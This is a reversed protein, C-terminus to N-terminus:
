DRPPEPHINNSDNPARSSLLASVVDIVGATMKALRSVPGTDNTPSLDRIAVWHVGAVETLSVPGILDTGASWALVPTVMFKAKPDVFTPLLGLIEVSSPNLGVEERAERLATAAPNADAEEWAGGPFSLQRPYDRSGSAREILLVQVGSPGDSLLVLVASTHLTVKEQPPAASQSYRRGVAASLSRTWKPSERDGSEKSSSM